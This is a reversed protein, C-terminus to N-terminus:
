GRVVEELVRTELIKQIDAWGEEVSQEANVTEFLDSRHDAISLFAQRVKKQYQIGRAEIRDPMGHARQALLEPDGDLYVVLDPEPLRLWDEAFNLVWNPGLLDVGQYAASSYYYRDLLVVLGAKLAPLVEQELLQTRAAFFLLLETKATMRGHEKDLLLERIREGIPTGGPERFRVLDVGRLRLFTETRDLATTKGSHDVGEIVIFRAKKSMGREKWAM